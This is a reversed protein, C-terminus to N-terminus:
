HSVSCVLLELEEISDRGNRKVARDQESLGPLSRFYAPFFCCSCSPFSFGLSSLAFSLFFFHFSCLLALLLLRLLHFCFSLPHLFSFFRFDFSRDVASAGILSSLTRVWLDKQAVSDCILDLSHSPDILSFSRPPENLAWSGFRGERISQVDCLFVSSM